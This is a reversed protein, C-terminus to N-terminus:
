QLSQMAPELWSFLFGNIEPFQAALLGLAPVLIFTGMKVWFALGLEGPNTDTIRSLTADRHMQAYVLGVAGLILFFLAILLSRLRLHPEFPYSNVSMLIFIFVGASSLVLTQIRQLIVLIYALFFLCVFREACATLPCPIPECPKKSGEPADCERKQEEQLEAANACRESSWKASLYILASACTRALQGHFSELLEQWYNDPREWFKRPQYASKAVTECLANASRESERINELFNAYSLPEAPSAEQTAELKQFKKLSELERSILRYFNVLGSGASGALRWLSQWAFGKLRDFSRRLPLDEMARLLSRFEMWVLVLRFVITLLLFLAAVLLLGYFYEYWSGDLAQVPHRRGLILIMLWVVFLAPLLARPDPGLPKLSRMLGKQSGKTLNKLRMRDMCSSLEPANEFETEDPLSPGNKGRLIIGQLGLWCWWMGAVLLLLVPIVPSNGSALHTARYLLFSRGADLMQGSFYGRLALLVVIAAGASVLFGSALRRSGRLYLGASFGLTVAGLAVAPALFLKMGHMEIRGWYLWPYLFVFQMGLLIWGCAFLLRDRYDDEDLRFTTLAESRPFVPPRAMLWSLLLALGLSLLEAIQWELPASSPREGRSPAADIAELNSELKLKANSIDEEDLLALPWAGGSGNVTLWLPPTLATDDGKEELTAPWGFQAYSAQPLIKRRQKARSAVAAKTAESPITSSGEAVLSMLANFVGVSYNDSFMKDTHSNGSANEPAAVGSLQDDIGPLLPYSTISLVGRLNPRDFDRQYLLDSGITAIHADPYTTRLFQCLFLTDLSNSARIIIFRIHHKKLNAVVGLLVGEQSLPTQLNAYPSVSDGDSGTADLKLPLTTRPVKKGNDTGDQNLLDRQYAARLQAIDRPFYLRVMQHDDPRSDDDYQKCAGPIETNADPERINGYATEDESLIAIDHAEYGLKELHCRFHEDAYGDSEQFTTFEANSDWHKLFNRFEQTSAWSSATGSHILIKGFNQRSQGGLEMQLIQELSALSGSSTTGLIRLHKLDEPIEDKGLIGQIMRLANKFQEKHIGGTPTEGVVLVFLTKAATVHVNRKAHDAHTLAPAGQVDRFIMLGPYDEKHEQYLQGAIRLMLDPTDPHDGNEWPMTARSFLFGAEQAAKTVAEINRDFSLGLHTHVPDPVTAIVFLIGKNEGEPVGWHENRQYKASREGSKKSPFNDHPEGFHAQILDLLDKAPCLANCDKCPPDTDGDTKCATFQERAIQGASTQNSEAKGQNTQGGHSASSDPHPGLLVSFAVFVALLTGYGKKM